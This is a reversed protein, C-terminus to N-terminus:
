EGKIRKILYDENEEHKLKGMLLPLEELPTDYIKSRELSTATVTVLESFTDNFYSSDWLVNTAEDAAIRMNEPSIKDLEEKTYEDHDELDGKGMWLIPYSKEVAYILSKFCTNSHCRITGFPLKHVTKCQTGCIICPIKTM